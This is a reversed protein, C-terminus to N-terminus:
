GHWHRFRKEYIQALDDDITDSSWRGDSVIGVSKLQGPKRSGYTSRIARRILESRSAGSEASERDLIAIEDDSLHIQTRTMRRIICRM